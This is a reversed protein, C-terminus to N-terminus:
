WGKMGMTRSWTPTIITMEFEGEMTTDGFMAEDARQVIESASPSAFAAAGYLGVLMVLIGAGALSTRSNMHTVKKDFVNMGADSVAQRSGVRARKKEINRQM